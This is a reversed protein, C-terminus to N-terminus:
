DKDVTIILRQKTGDNDYGVATETINWGNEIAVVKKGGVFLNVCPKEISTITKYTLERM